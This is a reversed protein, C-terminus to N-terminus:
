RGRLRDVRIETEIETLRNSTEVIAVLRPAPRARRWRRSVWGREVELDLATESRFDFQAELLLRPSVARSDATRRTSAVERPQGGDANPAPGEAGRDSLHHPWLVRALGSGDAMACVESDGIAEIRYWESLQFHLRHVHPEHGRAHLTDVIRWHSEGERQVTRQHEVPHDLREYGDHSAVLREDEPEWAEISARARRAVRFADWIESQNEGDVSVTNHAPTSRFWDRQEGARYTYVGPDVLLPLGEASLLVQLTDAHAHGPLHNPGIAGADILAYDDTDDWGGRLVAYGSDDHLHSTGDPRRPDLERYTEVGDEGLTWRLHWLDAEGAAHKWEPREFWAAGSALLARPDIPYGEVTDNVMPTTGEPRLTTAVFQFMQELRTEVDGYESAREPNSVFLEFADKLVLLQYSASQEEHSGDERTQRYWEHWFSEVAPAITRRVRASLRGGLHISTWALAWLNALLHNGELDREPWDALYDSQQEISPLAHAATEDWGPANQLATLLQSWAVLRRSTPYPHWGLGEPFPNADIWGDIAGLARRAYTEDGTACWARALELTWEFYHLEFQWLDDGEPSWWWDISDGFVVRQGVCEFRGEVLDPVREPVSTAEFALPSELPILTSKPRSEPRPYDDAELRFPRSIRRLRHYFQSPKLHRLTQVYRDLTDAFTSM